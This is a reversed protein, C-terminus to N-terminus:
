VDRSAGPPVAPLLSSSTLWGLVERSGGWPSEPPAPLGVRGAWGAGM